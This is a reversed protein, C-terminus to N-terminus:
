ILRTPSDTWRSTADPERFRPSTMRFVATRNTLWFPKRVARAGSIITGQVHFAYNFTATLIDPRTGMIGGIMNPPLLPQNRQAAYKDPPPAPAPVRPAQPPPMPVFGYPPAPPPCDPGAGYPGNEYGPPCDPEGNGSSIMAGFEPPPPCDDGPQPLQAVRVYGPSPDLWQLGVLDIPNRGGVQWSVAPRVGSSGAEARDPRLASGVASLSRSGGPQRPVDGRSLPTEGTREAWHAPRTAGWPGAGLRSQAVVPSALLGHLVLLLLARQLNKTM